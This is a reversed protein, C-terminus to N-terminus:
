NHIKNRTLREGVESWIEEAVAGQPRTADIVVVRDQEEHAIALFGERVRRHFDLTEEGLSDRAHGRDHRSRARSLGDEPPLDLFVTLDPSLGDTAIRNLDDIQDLPLDRGYGQYAVTSDAFRDCVVVRGSDLAPRIVRRVHDARAAAFFFLEAQPTIPPADGSARREFIGKVLAGLPTAAPEQTLCVDHGASRLREALTRAQTSKGSGEGGEFTIFLGAV